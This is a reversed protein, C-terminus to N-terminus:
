DLPLSIMSSIRCEPVIGERFNDISDCMDGGWAGSSETAIDLAILCRKGGGGGRRWSYVARWFGGVDMVVWYCFGWIWEEKGVSSLLSKV